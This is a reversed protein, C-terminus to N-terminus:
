SRPSLATRIMETSSDQASAYVHAASQLSDRHHEMLAGLQGTLDALRDKTDTYTGTASASEPAQGFLSDSMHTGDGLINRYTALDDAGSDFVSSLRKLEDTHVATLSSEMAAIDELFLGFTTLQQRGVHSEPSCALRGEAPRPTSIINM